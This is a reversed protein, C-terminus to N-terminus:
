SASGSCQTYAAVGLTQVYHALALLRQGFV